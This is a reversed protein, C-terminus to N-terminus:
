KISELLEFFYKDERTKYLYYWAEITNSEMINVKKLKEYTFELPALGTATIINNCIVIPQNCFYKEGKYNPCIMKLYDLSNSTHKIENLFGINALGITAGCIAAITLNSNVNENVFNLIENNDGNLWTDAGPLILLDGERAKIDKVCIDPTIEMGGMTKISKLNKGIKIIKPKEINKKLYRGSNIESTLYSIEWDALTDLVYLFVNM